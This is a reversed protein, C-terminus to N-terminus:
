AMGILLLSAGALLAGIVIALGWLIYALPRDAPRRYLWAGLLLDALWVLGGIMPLLLLRGPPAAAAPEGESTFGFPIAPPLRGAQVGLYGLLILPILIGTILLLRAWGDAWLRAPLLDPRVSRRDMPQLSGLRTSAIFAREFAEPDPPSVVLRTSGLVVAVLQGGACAYYRWVTGASRREGVLLGLLRPLPPASVLDAGPRELREIDALPVQERNLGWRLQFGNRDLRYSATLLGYLQYGAWIALPLGVLPLGIWLVLLPSIGANALQLAGLSTLGLAAALALSARVIQM